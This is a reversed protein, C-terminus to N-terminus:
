PSTTPEPSPAPPAGTSVVIDVASGPAAIVGAAPRQLVVAGAPVADSAAETVVVVFGAALLTQSAAEQSAGTVDPVEVDTPAPAGTSVRLDVASGEDVDAGAEPSQEIVTGEPGDESAVETITGVALGAKDLAKGAGDATMGIVDPVAVTAAAEEDDGGFVGAAWAAAVAVLVAVVVLAIWLPAKSRPAPPPAGVFTAGALLHELRQRLAAASLRQQPDKHLTSMVIEALAAPVAPNRMQPPAVVGDTQERAVIAADAGDVAPAGTLMLYLVLGLRYVDAAPSPAAGRAEEPSLYRATDPAAGPSLDPPRLVGAVGAGTLKLPGTSDRVLASPEVAGHVAGAAHLAALAAAAEAAILSADAADLPGGEVLQQADRGHVDEAVVFCDSGVRGADVVSALGVHRVTAVRNAELLFADSEVPQGVTIVVPRGEADLARHRAAARGPPLAEILRYRQAYLHENM